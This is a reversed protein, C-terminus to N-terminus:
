CITRRKRRYAAFSSLGVALLAPTAPESVATLKVEGTVYLRTTNWNYRSVVRFADVPEVGTWDFVRFTRGIQGAVNVDDAFALELTGDLQVPIGPEFAILSDWPDADFRLELVGGEALSMQDQITIGHSPRPSLSDYPPPNPIGDDDRVVLRQGAALGLGEIRGNPRIANTLIADTLDAGIISAGRLDAATLDASAVTSSSL